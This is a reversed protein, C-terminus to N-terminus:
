QSLAAMVQETIASVLEETPERSGGGTGAAEPPAPDQLYGPFSPAPAFAQQRLAQGGYGDVVATNGCRDRICM